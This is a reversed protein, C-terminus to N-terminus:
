MVKTVREFDAFLLILCKYNINPKSYTTFVTPSLRDGEGQHRQQEGGREGSREEEEGLEINLLTKDGIVCEGIAILHTTINAPILPFQKVLGPLRLVASEDVGDDAKDDLVEKGADGDADDVVPTCVLGGKKGKLREVAPDAGTQAVLGIFRERRM